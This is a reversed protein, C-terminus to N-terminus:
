VHNSFVSMNGLISGVNVITGSHRKAMAPVVAKCIRLVAFTDTDFLQKVNDLSGEILPGTFPPSSTLQFFFAFFSSIGPTAIGANNVVVNIKGQKDVIYDLPICLFFVVM